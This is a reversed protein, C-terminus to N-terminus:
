QRRYRWAVAGGRDVRVALPQRGGPALAPLDVTESAVVEGSSGLFEVVLTTAPLARGSANRVNGNLAVSRETAAFQSVVVNWGLGTDAVALYRAVSDSGGALDWALAMARPTAPNLPDIEQLRRAADRLPEARRLAYYAHVLVSLARQDYRNRALAGELVIAAAGPYGDNYLGLGGQVLAAPAAGESDAVRRAVVELAGRDGASAYHRLLQMGADVDTPYEAAYREYARIAPALARAAATSEAAASAGLSDRLQRSRELRQSLQTSDRQFAELSRPNLQRGGARVRAVDGTIKALATSDRSIAPATTDRSARTQAVSGVAPDQYARTEWARAVDLLAQRRRAAHATDTGAAALGTALAMEASDPENVAAYMIATYLPIEADDPQLSGAVRFWAVASDRQGAGWTRLAENLAIGALPLIYGAVDSACDPALAVARRFASDAGFPDPLEYYYRGLYYWAAPNEAQGRELIAQLLIRRAEALRGARQDPYRAEIAQKLQMVGGNVLFHGTSIRCPPRHPVWAQGFLPVAPGAALAVALLAHKVGTM